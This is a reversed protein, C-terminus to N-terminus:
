VDVWYLSVGHNFIHFQDSYNEESLEYVFGLYLRVGLLDTVYYHSYVFLIRSYSKLYIYKLSFKSARVGNIVSLLRVFTPKLIAHFFVFDTVHEKEINCYVEM